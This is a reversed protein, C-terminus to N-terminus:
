SGLWPLFSAGTARKVFWIAAVIAVAASIPVLLAREYWKRRAALALLPFVVTVICLQALEIGVNFSLLAWVAGRRPLETEALVTAFRRTGDLAQKQPRPFPGRRPHHLFYLFQQKESADM